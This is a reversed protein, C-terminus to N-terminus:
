KQDVIWHVLRIRKRRLFDHEKVDRWKKRMMIRILIQDSTRLRGEPQLVIPLVFFLSLGSFTFSSFSFSLSFSSALHMHHARFTILKFVRKKKIGMGISLGLTHLRASYPCCSRYSSLSYCHISLLHSSHCGMFQLITCVHFQDYEQQSCWISCTKRGRPICGFCWSLSSDLNRSQFLSM